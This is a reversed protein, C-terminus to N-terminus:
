GYKKRAEAVLNLMNQASEKEPGDEMTNIRGNWKQFENRLYRKIQDKSMSQDIGLLEEISADNSVKTALGVLKRDKIKNLEIVDLNLAESVNKITQIEKTDAIGDAAMIEYCFEIAEYKTSKDAIDNLQRTINSLSLNGSRAKEYAEKMSSNYLEKLEVRKDEPYAQINKKAWSQIAAGESDELTGDAMAVALGLQVILGMSKQKEESEELYGKDKFTHYTSHRKMWLLGHHGDRHNGMTINIGSDLDILRLIITLKRRGSYPPVLFDPAVPSIPTWSLWGENPNVEGADTRTQYIWSDPEQYGEIISLVPYVEKETEDLVSTVFGVRTKRNIKPILGRAEISFIDLSDSDEPNIKTKNFKADFPEMGKFAHRINGSFSGKGMVTRSAASVTKSGASFISQLITWAFVLAILILAGEM